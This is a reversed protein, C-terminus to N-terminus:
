RYGMWVGWYSYIVPTFGQVCCGLFVFCFLVEKSLNLTTLFLLM